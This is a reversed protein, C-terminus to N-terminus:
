PKVKGAKDVLDLAAVTRDHLTACTEASVEPDDCAWEELLPALPRLAELERLLPAGAVSSLAIRAVAWNGAMELKSAQSSTYRWNDSEAYFKLAERMALAQAEVTALKKEQEEDRTVMFNHKEILADLEKEVQKTVTRAMDRQEILARQVISIMAARFEAMVKDDVDGFLDKREALDALVEDATAQARVELLDLKETM